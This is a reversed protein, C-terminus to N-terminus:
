TRLTSTETSKAKAKLANTLPAHDSIVGGGFMQGGIARGGRHGCHFGPGARQRPRHVDGVVAPGGAAFRGRPTPSAHLRAIAAEDTVVTSTVNVGVMLRRRCAAAFVQRAAEGDNQVNADIMMCAGVPPFPGSGGMITVQRFYNLVLPDADLALGLNTMPCLTLLDYRGPATRGWEILQEASNLASLVAPDAREAAPVVDGL